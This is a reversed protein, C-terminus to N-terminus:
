EVTSEDFAGIWVTALGLATAALQAYTCAITADQISFLSSGRRGYKAAARTPNAIFILALPAEAIFAQDLSARALDRLASRRTVVCIEYSQLNGASPARNAAELIADLRQQDVAKPLYARVSRRNQMLTFFDM